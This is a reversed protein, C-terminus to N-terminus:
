KLSARVAEYYHKLYYEAIEAGTAHWVGDHAGIYDLARDLYGIRQPQGIIHGHLSICLIRGNDAGEAYLQDFQRKVIDLFTDAEFSAGMVSVDNVESAYPMAILRGAGVRLPTPQDDHFWDTQM